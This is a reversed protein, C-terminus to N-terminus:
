ISSSLITQAELKKDENLSDIFTPSMAALYFKKLMNWNYRLAFLVRKKMLVSLTGLAHGTSPSRNHLAEVLVECCESCLDFRNSLVPDLALCTASRVDRYENM